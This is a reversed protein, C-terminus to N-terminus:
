LLVQIIADLVDRINNEDFTKVHEEVIPKMLAVVRDM